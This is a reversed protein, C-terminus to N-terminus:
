NVRSCRYGAANLEALLQEVHEPGRTEMTIDIATEGLSVGYHARNHSTEVINAHNRAIVSVVGQLTGPYDPLHIRVRLRRGDKTLGREIIRALMSVDLNGGSILVALREGRCGIKGYLAAALAAAGAGEALTKERELLVLIAAAIEEEEVTVIQDVYQRLLPLTVAGSRRVAIGDALTPAAPLLVPENQQLAALASPLRATQVGIVRVDPRRSKIACAIGAILGGGGVPVVVADPAIGSALIELGITGQGAIVDEDDFAHLFTLGGEASRQVAAGYTEDYDQGELVVEAGYGRTAMVKILPTHRPMWIQAAIGLRSAHYAIGQGHNGASAAVVGRRRQDESMTLLRNLAGREKFAGTVQLNELKLYVANRTLGTLTESYVLPSEYVANRIRGAAAEIRDPTLM